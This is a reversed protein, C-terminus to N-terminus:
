GRCSWAELVSRSIWGSSIQQVVRSSDPEWNRFKVIITCISPLCVEAGCQFVGWFWALLRDWVRRCLACGPVILPMAWCCTKSKVMWLWLHPRGPPSWATNATIYIFLWSNTCLASGLIQSCWLEHAPEPQGLAWLRSSHAPLVQKRLGPVEAFM